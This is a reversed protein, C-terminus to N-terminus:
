KFFLTDFRKKAFVFLYIIELIGLTNVIVMVIFWIYDNRRASHWLALGKWFISWALVATFLVPNNIAFALPSISPHMTWCLM